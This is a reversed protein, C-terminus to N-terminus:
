IVELFLLYFLLLFLIFLIFYFLYIFYFIYTYLTRIYTYVIRVTKLFNSIRVGYIYYTYQVEGGDTVTSIM